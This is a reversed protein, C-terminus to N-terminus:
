VRRVVARVIESAGVHLAGEELVARADALELVDHGAFDAALDAVSYLLHADRPGGRAGAAHAALQEPRFAELILLGGPKLAALARAHLFRREDAALHLYILAVVDYVERPWNWALVDAQTANVSVGRSAALRRAKAVGHASLDLTDVSLGQEALWVGNRGEGDGPVLARMGPKLRPAQAVLFANAAEGYAYPATEYRADWMAARESPKDNM